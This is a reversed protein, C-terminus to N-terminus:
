ASREREPDWRSISFPDNTVVHDPSLWEEGYRELAHRPVPFAFPMTLRQLSASGGALKSIIKMDFAPGIVSATELLSRQGSPLLGFLSLMIKQVRVPVGKTAFSGRAAALSLEELFLPIGKGRSRIQEVIDDRRGAVEVISRILRSSEDASLPELVLTSVAHDVSLDPGFGNRSSLLFLIPNDECLSFFHDVIEQSIGDAWQLDELVLIVTRDKALVSLIRSIFRALREVSMRGSMLVQSANTRDKLAHIKEFDESLLHFLDEQERPDEDPFARVVERHNHESGERWAVLARLAEIFPWAARNRYFDSCQGRLRLIPPDGKAETKHFFEHILRSKGIGAEGRVAVVRGHGRAAEDLYTHLRQLEDGRGVLPTVYRAAIQDNSGTSRGHLLFVPIDWPARGLVEEFVYSRRCSRKTAGDLRIEGPESQMRLRVASSIVKGTVLPKVPSRGHGSGETNGVHVLGTTVATSVPLGKLLAQTGIQLAANLARDPDDEHPTQAGFMGLIEGGVIEILDCGQQKLASQILERM